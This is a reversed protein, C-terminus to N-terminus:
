DHNKEVWDSRGLTFELSPNKQDLSCGVYSMARSYECEQLLKKMCKTCKIDHNKFIIAVSSM